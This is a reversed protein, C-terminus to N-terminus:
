ENISKKVVEDIVSKPYAAGYGHCVEAGKLNQMVSYIDFEEVESLIHLYEWAAAVTLVKKGSEDVYQKRAVSEGHEQRNDILSNYFEDETPFTYKNSDGAASISHCESATYCEGSDKQLLLRRKEATIEINLRQLEELEKRLSQRSKESKQLKEELDKLKAEKRERFAKQAARNQAKKREKFDEENEDLNFTESLTPCGSSEGNSSSSGFPFSIQNDNSEIVGRASYPVVKPVDIDQISEGGERSYTSFEPDIGTTPDDACTTCHLLIDSHLNEEFNGKILTCLDEEAQQQAQM